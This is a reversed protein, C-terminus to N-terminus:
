SASHAAARPQAREIDRAVQSTGPDPATNLESELLRKLGEYRDLAEKRRGLSSEIVMARRYLDECLPECEIARDLIGLADEGRGDEYLREALRGSARLFLARYRERAPQAWAFYADDCFEGRYLGVVSQLRSVEESRPQEQLILREMEWADVRWAGPELRWTEGELEVYKREDGPTRVRTRVISAARAVLDLAKKTPMGRFLVEALREKHAGDPHLILYALLEKAPARWGKGPVTGDSRAVVIPGLCRIEACPSGDAALVPPLSREMAEVSTAPGAQETATEAEIATSLREQSQMEEMRASESADDEIADRIVQAADCAEAPGLVLPAYNKM